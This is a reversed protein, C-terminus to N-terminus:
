HELDHGNIPDNSKTKQSLNKWVVTGDSRLGIVVDRWVHTSFRTKASPLVIGPDVGSYPYGTVPWSLWDIDDKMNEDEAQLSFSIFAVMLAIYSRAMSNDDM